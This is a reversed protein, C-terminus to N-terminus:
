ESAGEEGEDKGDVDGDSMDAVFNDLLEVVAEGPNEFDEDTFDDIDESEKDSDWSASAEYGEGDDDVYLSIHLDVDGDDSVEIDQEELYAEIAAQLEDADVDKEGVAVDLKVSVSPSEAFAPTGASLTLAVLASLFLGLKRHQIM